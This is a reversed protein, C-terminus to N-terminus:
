KFVYLLKIRIKAVVESILIVDAVAVVLESDVVVVDGVIVVVKGGVVVIDVM